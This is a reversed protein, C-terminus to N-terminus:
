ERAPIGASAVYRRVAEVRRNITGDRPVDLLEFIENNWREVTGPAVGQVQAIHDNTYGMALLRLARLRKPSLNSLSDDPEFTHQTLEPHGRLVAEISEM